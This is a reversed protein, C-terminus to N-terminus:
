CGPHPAADRSYNVWVGLSYQGSGVRKSVWDLLDLSLCFNFISLEAIAKKEDDTIDDNVIL